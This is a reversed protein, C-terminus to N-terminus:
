PKDGLARRHDAATMLTAVPSLETQGYAQVFNCNFVELGKALTEQAIPSGGYTMLALDAYERQAVDPVAVLCAQVMAPVLITWKINDEDLARVVEVPDFDQHIM